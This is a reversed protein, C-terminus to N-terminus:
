KHPPFRSPGRSRRAFQLTTSSNQGPSLNGTGNHTAQRTLIPIKVFRRGHVSTSLSDRLNSYSM